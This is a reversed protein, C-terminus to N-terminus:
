EGDEPLRAYKWGTINTGNENFSDSGSDDVVFFTANYYCVFRNKYWTVSVDDDSVMIWDGPKLGDGNKLLPPEKYEQMLWEISNRKCTGCQYEANCGCDVTNNRVSEVACSIFKREAIERIEKKYKEANTMDEVKQELGMIDMTHGVGRRDLKRTESELAKINYEYDDHFNYLNNIILFILVSLVVLWVILYWSM